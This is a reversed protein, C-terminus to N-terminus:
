DQSRLLLVEVIHILAHEFKAACLRTASEHGHDVLFTAFALFLNLCLSCLFEISFFSFHLLETVSSLAIAERISFLTSLLIRTASPSCTRDQM